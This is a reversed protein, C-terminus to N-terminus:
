SEQSIIKADTKVAESEAAPTRVSTWAVPLTGKLFYLRWRPLGRAQKAPQAQLFVWPLGPKARTGPLGKM